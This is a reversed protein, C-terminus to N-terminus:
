DDFDNWEVSEPGSSHLVEMPEFSLNPIPVTATEGKKSRGSPITGKTKTMDRTRRHHWAPLNHHWRWFNTRNTLATVGQSRTKGAELDKEVLM